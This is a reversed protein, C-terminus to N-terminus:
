NGIEWSYVIFNNVLEFLCHSLKTRMSSSIFSCPGKHAAADSAVCDERIQILLEVSFISVVFPPFLEPLLFNWVCDMVTYEKM